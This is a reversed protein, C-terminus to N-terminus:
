CVYIVVIERKNDLRKTFVMNIQAKLSNSRSVNKQIVSTEGSATVSGKHPYVLSELFTILGLQWSDSIIAPFFPFSSDQCKTGDALTADITKIRM